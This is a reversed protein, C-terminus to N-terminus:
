SRLVPYAARLLQGLGILSVGATALVAVLSVAPGHGPFVGVTILFSSAVIVRTPREGVTVVEISTMGANGARARAYELLGLGVGAVVCVWGACGLLWFAVLYVADSVRDVLSDM